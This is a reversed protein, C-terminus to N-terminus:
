CKSIVVGTPIGQGVEVISSVDEINNRLKSFKSKEDTYKLFCTFDYLASLPQYLSKTGSLYQLINSPLQAFANSDGNLVSKFKLPM